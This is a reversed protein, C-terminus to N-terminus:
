HRKLKNIKAHYACAYNGGKRGLSDPLSYEGDTFKIFENARVGYFKTACNFAFQMVSTESKKNGYM